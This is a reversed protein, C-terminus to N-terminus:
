GQSCQKESWLGIKIWWNIWKIKWHLLETLGLWQDGLFPQRDGLFDILLENVIQFDANETIQGL